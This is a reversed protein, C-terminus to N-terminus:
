KLRVAVSRHPRAPYDVARAVMEFMAEGEHCLTTLGSAQVIWDLIRRAEDPSVEIGIPGAPPTINM